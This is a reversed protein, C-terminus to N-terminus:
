RPFDGFSCTDERAGFSMAVREGARVAPLDALLGAFGEDAVDVGGAQAELALRGDRVDAICPHWEVIGDRYAFRLNFALRIIDQNSGISFRRLM